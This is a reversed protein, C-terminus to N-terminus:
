GGGTRGLLKERTGARTRWWAGGHDPLTSPTVAKRAEVRPRTTTRMVTRTIAAARTVTKKTRAASSWRRAERGVAAVALSVASSRPATRSAGWMTKRLVAGPGVYPM